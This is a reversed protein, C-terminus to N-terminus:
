LEEYLERITKRLKPHFFDPDLDLFPKLVFEREQLLPHPIVLTEDNFILEDYFLIDIDIERPGFHFREKRGIQKEVEKIFHLLELPKIETYGMVITNIFTDQKEYYQPKTEYFKAVTINDIQKKLLGIADNIRQKKDGLNSGLALFVKTM